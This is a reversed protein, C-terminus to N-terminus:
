LQIRTQGRNGVGIASKCGHKGEGERGKGRDVEAEAVTDGEIEGAESGEM